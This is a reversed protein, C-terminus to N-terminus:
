VVVLRVVMRVVDEGGDEGGDVYGDLGDNEGSYWRCLWVEVSNFRFIVVLLYSQQLM